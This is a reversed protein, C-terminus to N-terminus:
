LVLSVPFKVYHTFINKWFYLILGDFWRNIVGPGQVKIYLNVSPIGSTEVTPWRVLARTKAIQRVRPDHEWREALGELSVPTEETSPEPEPDQDRAVMTADADAMAM